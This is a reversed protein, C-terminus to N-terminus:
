HASFLLLVIFGKKMSMLMVGVIYKKSEEVICLLLVVIHRFVDINHALLINRYIDDIDATSWRIQEFAVLPPTPLPRPIPNVLMLNPCILLM